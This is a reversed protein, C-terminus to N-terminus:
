RIRERQALAKSRAAFHFQFGGEPSWGFDLRFTEAGPGLVRLGAGLGGRARNTALERSDSWAIGADGFVALELGMKVAFKWLDWRRQPILTFSYEATGLMQNKGFLRTGLDLIDYGRLSNAGGLRYALYIPVDEELTGTQLSALGSLMLRPGKPKARWHRLDVNLSWFEGDGGLFGGTRWLEVENQWGKRTERWDDRSDWGVSVGLRHLQDENDPSLTKGDVDSRMRFFSVKGDLRGHRGLYRGVQPTFELSNEDFGNLDDQRQLLAGRFRLSVHDGGIWPYAGVVLFQDAGGFLVRGSFQIGRGALNLAAVAPGISFGDQETYTAAVLPLWAPMEKFHFAVRVGDGDPEVTATIEAFISRNDLRQADAALTELHLPEGVRTEIERRIFDERTTEFGTLEIATVRQGQHPALAVFDLDSAASPAALAVCGAFAVAGARARVRAFRSLRRSVM